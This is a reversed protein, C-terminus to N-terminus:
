QTPKKLDIKMYMKLVERLETIEFVEKYLSTSLECLNINKLKLESILPQLYALRNNIRNYWYCLTEENYSKHNNIIDYRENEKIEM